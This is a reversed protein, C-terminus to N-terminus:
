LSRRPWFGPVCVSSNARTHVRMRVIVDEKHLYPELVPTCPVALTLRQLPLSVISCCAMSRYWLGAWVEKVHLSVLLRGWLHEAVGWLRHVVVRWTRGERGVGAGLGGACLFGGACLRGGWLVEELFYDLISCLSLQVSCELKKCSNSYNM